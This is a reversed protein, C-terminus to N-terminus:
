FGTFVPRRCNNLLARPQFHRERQRADCAYADSVSAFASTDLSVEFLTWTAINVCIIEAGSDVAKALEEPNHVEVLARPWAFAGNACAGCNPNM